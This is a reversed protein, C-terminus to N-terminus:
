YIKEEVISSGSVENIKRKLSARRDNKLYVQRAADVFTAGFDQRAECQRKFDEIYWLAQNVEKLLEKLEQVHASLNLSSAIESLLALEQEVNGRQQDNIAHLQKIELITIKDILEGVSIPAQVIM